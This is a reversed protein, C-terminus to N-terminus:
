GVVKPVRFFTGDHRPAVGLAQERPLEHGPEDPRFSNVEETMHYLPAVESTDLANLQEMWALIRNMSDLLPAQDEERLHLRSLHAVRQLTEPTVKM